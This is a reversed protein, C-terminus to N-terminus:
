REVESLRKRKRRAGGVRGRRQWRWRGERGRESARESESENGIEGERQEGWGEEAGGWM